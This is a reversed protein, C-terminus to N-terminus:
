HRYGYRYGGLYGHGYASRHTYGYPARGSYYGGGYRHGYGPYGGYPTGYACAGLLLAVLGFVLASKGARRGKEVRMASTIRTINM